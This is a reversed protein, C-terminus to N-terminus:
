NHNPGSASFCNNSTNQIQRDFNIKTVEGTQYCCNQEQHM